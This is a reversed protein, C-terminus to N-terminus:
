YSLGALSERAARALAANPGSSFKNLVKKSRDTGVFGLSQIVAVKLAESRTNKGGGLGLFGGSGLLAHLASELATNEPPSLKLRNISAVIQLALEESCDKAGLIEALRILVEPKTIGTVGLCAAARKRVELDPDALAEVIHLEAKGKLLRALGPLAEKRVNAQPHKCCQLLLKEVKPGGANLRALILLMNRLYHWGQKSEL